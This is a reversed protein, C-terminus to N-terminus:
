RLITLYEDMNCISNDIKINICKRSLANTLLEIKELTLSEAIVCDYDFMNPLLDNKIYETPKVMISPYITNVM